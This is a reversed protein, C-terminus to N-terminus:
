RLSLYKGKVTTNDSWRGDGGVVVTPTKDGCVCEPATLLQEPDDQTTRVRAARSDMLWLDLFNLDQPFEFCPQRAM